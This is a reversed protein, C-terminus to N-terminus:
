DYDTDKWRRITKFTDQSDQMKRGIYREAAAIVADQKIRLFPNTAKEMGITSPVTHGQRDLQEHAQRERRLLAENDSEIWKAFGINDITYEHACYALTDQPLDAIRMLSDHLQEHTGSFVRGCGVSFLTDGCFLIGQDQQESYYAIHGETHGPVEMVSFEAELFDIIIRDGETLRQTLYRIPEHAPGFVEINPYKSLLQPLGGIHDHHKHTILIAGLELGDHHLRHLVSAADGPDVVVGFTGATKKILWIFNDSFAYIPSIDIM